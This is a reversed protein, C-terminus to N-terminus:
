LKVSEPSKLSTNWLFAKTTEKGWHLNYNRYCKNWIILNWKKKIIINFIRHKAYIKINVDEFIAQLKFFYPITDNGNHARVWLLLFGM